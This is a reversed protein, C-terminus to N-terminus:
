REIWESAALHRKEDNLVIKKEFKAIEKGIEKEKIENSEDATSIFEDLKQRKFDAM